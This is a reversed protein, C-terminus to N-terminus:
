SATSVPRMGRYVRAGSLTKLITNPPRDLITGLENSSLPLNANKLFERFIAEVLSLGKNEDENQNMKQALFYQLANARSVEATVPDVVDLENEEGVEQLQRELDEGLLGHLYANWEPDHEQWWQFDIHFPTDLTPKLLSSIPKESM